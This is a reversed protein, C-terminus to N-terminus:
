RIKGVTVDLEIKLDKSMCLCKRESNGNKVTLESYSAYMFSFLSVALSFQFRGRVVFM